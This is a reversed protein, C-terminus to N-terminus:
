SDFEPVIEIGILRSRPFYLVRNDEGYQLYVLSDGGKGGESLSSMLSTLSPEDLACHLHIPPLGEIYITVDVADPANAPIEKNHM